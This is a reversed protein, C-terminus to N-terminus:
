VATTVGVGLALSLVAFITFMPTALLRRGAMRLDGGIGQLLSKPM